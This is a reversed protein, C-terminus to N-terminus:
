PKLPSAVFVDLVLHYRHIIRGVKGTYKLIDRNKRLRHRHYKYKKLWFAIRDQLWAGTQVRRSRKQVKLNGAVKASLLKAPAEQILNNSPNFSYTIHPNHTSKMSSGAVQIVESLCAFSASGYCNLFVVSFGKRLFVISMQYLVCWYILSVGRMDRKEGM